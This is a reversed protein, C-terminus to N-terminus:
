YNLGLERLTKNIERIEDMTYEDVGVFDYASMHDMAKEMTKFDSKEPEDSNFADIFEQASKKTSSMFTSNYEKLSMGNIFEDFKKIM